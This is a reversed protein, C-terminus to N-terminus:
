VPSSTKKNNLKLLEEYIKSVLTEYSKYINKGIKYSIRSASFNKIIILDLKHVKEIIAQAKPTM